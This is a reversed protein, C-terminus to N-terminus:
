AGYVLLYGQPQKGTHEGLRPITALLPAGPPPVDPRPRRFTRYRVEIRPDEAYVALLAKVVANLDEAAITTMLPLFGPVEEVEGVVVEEDRSRWTRSRADSVLPDLELDLLNSLLSGKRTEDFEIITRRRERPPPRYFWQELFTEWSDAI